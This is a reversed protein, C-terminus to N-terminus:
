RRNPVFIQVSDDFEDDAVARFLTKRDTLHQMLAATWPM